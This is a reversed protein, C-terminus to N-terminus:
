GPWGEVVLSGGEAQARETSRRLVERATVDVWGARALDLALRPPAPAAVLASALAEEFAAANMLHLPGTVGYRQEGAQGPGGRELLEGPAQPRFLSAWVGRSGSPRRWLYVLLALGVGVAMGTAVSVLLVAALTGLAVLGELPDLRWARWLAAPELLTSVALVVVAALAARPIPHFSATLLGLSVLLLVATTLSARGSAAGAQHNVMSRSLGGTVAFGGVLGSAVNSLSLAVLEGDPRVRERRRAALTRAISLLELFGVAAIALATPLLDLCEGFTARPLSPSPWGAPVAGVVAVGRSELGLIVVTLTALVVAALPACRAAAGAAGPGVRLRGLLGGVYRRWLLAVLLSGLGVFLTPGHAEGLRGLTALIAEVPAGGEPVSVGALHKIQSFAIVLAAAHTFGALMPASLLAALAGLRLLRFLLYVGAVLLALVAALRQAEEGGLLVIGALVQATLLSDIAVPGVSVSRSPGILGYVLLSAASAYLGAVPPVGALVAYAMAQPVLMAAVVTGAVLDHALPAARAGALGGGLGWRAGLGRGATAVRAFRSRRSPGPESRPTTTPM